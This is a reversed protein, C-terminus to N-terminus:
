ILQSDQKYGQEAADCRQRGTRLKETSGMVIIDSINERVDSSWDELALKYM